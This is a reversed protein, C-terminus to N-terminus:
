EDNEGWKGTLYFRDDYHLQMDASIRRVYYQGMGNNERYLNRDIFLALGIVVGYRQIAQTAYVSCSVQFPCRAISQTAITTQYLHINSLLVNSLISPPPAEVQRPEPPIDEAEWPEVVPPLQGLLSHGCLHLGIILLYTYRM